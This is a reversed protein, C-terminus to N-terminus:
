SSGASTSSAADIVSGGGGPARSTVYDGSVFRKMAGHIKRGKAVVNPALAVGRSGPLM